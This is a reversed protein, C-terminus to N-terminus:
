SLPSAIKVFNHIVTKSEIPIVAIYGSAAHKANQCFSVQFSEIWCKSKITLDQAHGIKVAGNQAEVMFSRKLSHDFSDAWYVMEQRPNYDLSQIRKEEVIVSLDREDDM